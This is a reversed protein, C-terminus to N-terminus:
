HSNCSVRLVHGDPHRVHCERVGWPLDEPPLVVEIGADQAIAYIEDVEDVWISLWMGRDQTEDGDPGFTSSNDGKGRGGQGDQCLFIECEGSGVAGFNPPDGWDWKKEWGLTEFWDFSEQLSSINLIPTIGKANM